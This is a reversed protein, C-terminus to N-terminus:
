KVDCAVFKFGAKTVATKVAGANLGNKTTLLVLRKNFSDFEMSMMVGKLGMVAKYLPDAIQGESAYEWTITAVDHSSCTVDYGLPGVVQGVVRPNFQTLDANWSGASGSFSIEKSIGRLSRVKAQMKAADGKADKKLKFSLDIRCPSLMVCDGGAVLPPVKSMERPEGFFTVVVIQEEPRFTYGKVFEKGKLAAEIDATKVTPSFWRVIVSDSVANPNVKEEDKKKGAGGGGSTGEPGNKFQAFAFAPATLLAIIVVLATRIKRVAAEV